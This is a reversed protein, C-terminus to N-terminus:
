QRRAMFAPHRFNGKPTKAANLDKWVGACHETPMRLFLFLTLIRTGLVQRHFAFPLLFNWTSKKKHASSISNVVIATSIWVFGWTFPVRIRNQANRGQISFLLISLLHEENGDRRNRVGRGGRYKCYTEKEEPLRSSRSLRKWFRPLTQIGRNRKKPEFFLTFCFVTFLTNLRSHM